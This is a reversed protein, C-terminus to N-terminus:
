PVRWATEGPIDLPQRSTAMIRVSACSQLLRYAVSQCAALVHECNDLVLLLRKSQLARALTEILAEAPLDHIGVSSAIAQPVLHEDTVAALDVLWVGDPYQERVLGAVHLALRTKGVGGPGTLTLLPVDALLGQLEVIQQRRGIFTTLPRPLNHRIPRSGDPDDFRTVPPPNLVRGEGVGPSIRVLVSNHRAGTVQRM